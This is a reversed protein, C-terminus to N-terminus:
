PVWGILRANQTLWVEVKREITRRQDNDLEGVTAADPVPQGVTRHFCQVAFIAEAETAFEPLFCKTGRFLPTAQFKGSPRLFRVEPSSVPPAPLPATPDTCIKLHYINWNPAVDVVAAQRALVYSTARDDNMGPPAALTAGEISALQTFTAMSHIAGEGNRM